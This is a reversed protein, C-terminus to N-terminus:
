PKEIFNWVLVHFPQRRALGRVGRGGAHGRPATRKPTAPPKRLRTGTYLRGCGTRNGTGDLHPLLFETDAGAHPVGTEALAGHKRQTAAAAIGLRLNLEAVHAGLSQRKADRPELDDRLRFSATSQKLPKRCRSGTRKWPM